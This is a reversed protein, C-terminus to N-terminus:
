PTTKPKRERLTKCPDDEPMAPTFWVYDYPLSAAGVPTAYDQPKLAEPSVELIAVSLVKADPARRMLHAPVARDKRVHGNGTILLAGNGVVLGLLQDAMMADRARQALAMPELMEQPLHGCHSRDLEERVAKAEAEPVPADLRLRTRLEVPLAEPGKMVLERVQARPLNAAVIPLQAELGANFVPAYLSFPPWGSNAWDLAQALAEADDPHKKLSAAVTSWQTVDLMEFALAPRRGAHVTARVLEAQLRHHDPHDHREGLLVYQTSAVATRLAAEDVFRGGAVDWIRGVLPHDQHLTATWTRTPTPSPSSPAAEPAPVQRSACGAAMLLAALLSPARTM